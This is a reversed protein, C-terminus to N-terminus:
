RSSSRSKSRPSSRLPVTSRSISNWGEGGPGESRKPGCDLDAQTSHKSPMEGQPERSRFSIPRQLSPLRFAGQRVLMIVGISFFFVGREGGGDIPRRYCGSLFSDRAGRSGPAGPIPSPRRSQSFPARNSTFYNAFYHGERAGPEWYVGIKDWPFEGVLDPVGTGYLRNAATVNAPSGSSVNVIWSAQRNELLRTLAGSSNGFLLRNPGLPLDYNGHSTFVHRRDSSLRTYDADRDLPDTYASGMLGPNKSRTCSTQLSFGALPRMTVQAQMSHYNASGWNTYMNVTGFQPNAVIINEPGGARREDL